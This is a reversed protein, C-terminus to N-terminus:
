RAVPKVKSVLAYLHDPLLAPERLVAWEYRNGSKHRSPPAVFQGRIKVDVKHAFPRDTINAADQGPALKYIWHAGLGSGSLATLTEPFVGLTTITQRGAEGDADILVYRGQLAIGINGTHSRFRERVVDMNTTASTQWSNGVPHKAIAKCQPNGCQCSGDSKIGWIPIPALDLSAYYEAAVLPPTDANIM